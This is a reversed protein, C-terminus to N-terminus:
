NPPSWIVMAYPGALNTAGTNICPNSSDFKGDPNLPCKSIVNESFDLVYGISGSSNLTVSIAVGDEVPAVDTCNNLENGSIDCSSTYASDASGTYIINGAPNLALGAARSSGDILNCGSVIGTISVNCNTIRSSPSLSSIYLKAPNTSSNLAVGMVSSFGSIGNNSCASLSGNQNILCNFVEGYRTVLIAYSSGAGLAIGVVDNVGAGTDACNTLNNNGPDIDCVTPSIGGERNAIYIRNGASNIAIGAPGNLNTAGSDQCSTLNDSDVTCKTVTSNGYNTIYAYSNLPAGGVTVNTSGGEYGTASGTVEIITGATGAAACLNDPDLHSTTSCSSNGAQIICSTSARYPSANGFGYESPAEGVLLNVTTNATVATPVSATITSCTGGAIPNGSASVTLQPAPSPGPGPTPTPTPTPSPTPTPVVNPNVNQNTGGTSTQIQGNPNTGTVLVANTTPAVSTNILEYTVKIVKQGNLITDTTTVNVNPSSSAIDIQSAILNGINYLYGYQVPNTQTLYVQNPTLQLNINNGQTTLTYTTTSTSSNTTAKLAESKLNLREAVSSIVNSTLTQYSTQVKMNQTLNVGQPIPLAIEVVDGMQLPSNGPGANNSIVVQNPIMNGSENVLEITNITGVNPSQVVATVLIFPVSSESYQAKPYFYLGVGNANASETYAVQQVGIALLTTAEVGNSSTATVVAGGAITSEPISLKLYCISKAAINACALASESDMTVNNGSGVQQSLSYTIGNIAASSPNYVGMYNVGAKNALSPLISPAVLSLSNNQSATSSNVNGSSSCAFLLTTTFLNLISMSNLKKM